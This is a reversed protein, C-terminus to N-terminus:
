VTAALQGCAAAVDAGGSYRRHSALGAEGLIDRFAAERRSRRFPDGPIENYPIVSIRPAVGAVERFRRARAALAAAHPDGDNVGDLLTVAWMPALGTTRAHDVLAAM